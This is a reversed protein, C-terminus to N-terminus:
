NGFEHVKNYIKDLFNETDVEKDSYLNSKFILKDDRYIELHGIIMNKYIVKPLEYNPKVVEMRYQSNNNKPIIIKEKCILEIENKGKNFGIKDLAKNEEVVTDYNYNDRVYNFIKESERWREICNLTVVIIEHGNVNFSSVLCKGANGTYGTKVGTAEPVQYLLKNINNYGRTFNHQEPDIIKSKVIESFSENNKAKATLLALDYATTYHNESDLGHPTEFHTDRLGIQFAYENMLKLFEEVSGGVGEAIAVAADNGSKFMLGYLLERISIEEGELYGVTSGHIAASKKSIVVKRDINGYNLAVLSTMIKTTSAMPILERSNKEYLVIGTDKDMAIAARADIILKKNGKTGQAFVISGSFIFICLSLSLSKIYYKM